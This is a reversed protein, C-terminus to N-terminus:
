LALANAIEVDAESWEGEVFFVGQDFYIFDDKIGSYRSM